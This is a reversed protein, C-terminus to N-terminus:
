RQLKDNDYKDAASFHKSAVDPLLPHGKKQEQWYCTIRSVHKTKGTEKACSESQKCVTWRWVEQKLPKRKTKRRREQNRNWQMQLVDKVIIPTRYITRADCQSSIHLYYKINHFLRQEELDLFTM